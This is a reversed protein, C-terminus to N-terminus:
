QKFEQSVKSSAPQGCGEKGVAAFVFPSLCAGVTVSLKKERVM